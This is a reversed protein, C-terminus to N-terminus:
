EAAEEAGVRRRQRRAPDDEGGVQEPPAVVGPALDGDLGSGVAAVRRLHDDGAARAVRQHARRGRADELLHREEGAGGAGAHLVIDAGRLARALTAEDDTPIPLAQLGASRNAPLAPDACPCTCAPDSALNRRAASEESVLLARLRVYQAVLEVHVAIPLSVM